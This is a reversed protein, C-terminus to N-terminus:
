SRSSRGSFSYVILGLAAIVLLIASIWGHLFLEAIFCLLVGIWALTTLARHGGRSHISLLILGIIVLIFESVLTLLAGGAGNVGSLPVNYRYTTALGAAFAGLVFLYLSTKNKMAPSFSTAFTTANM